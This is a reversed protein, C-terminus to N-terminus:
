KDTHYKGYITGWSLGAGFASLILQDGKSLQDMLSALMIPISSSVTNAIDRMKILYKYSPIKMVQKCLYELIFKNAQHFIFYDIEAETKKNKALCRQVSLPVERIAFEFIGKGDMHLCSGKQLNCELYRARSGDTGLDSAGLCIGSGSSDLWTATAADGFLPATNRDRMDLIRSYPDCTVILCNNLQGTSILSQGLVLAHIYGSCALGLDFCMCNKPLGLAAQLLASAHPILPDHIQGVWICGDVHDTRFIEDNLLSLCAKQALTIENEDKRLWHRNSIGVKQEMFNEDIPCFTSIHQNSYITEPLALSVKKIIM